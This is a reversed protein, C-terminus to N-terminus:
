GVPETSCRVGAVSEYVSAVRKAIVELSFQMASRHGNSRYRKVLVEALATGLAEPSRGVIKCFELGALREQVDGADVSVVPLNCAIAEKVVNPSGEWESTLLLCDAANMMVPIIGPTVNGDLVVFRIEGCLNEAAEVASRALDLRKSVPDVSANFLVVREDIGWGLESRATDRPRPSFLDIDVGSPIV